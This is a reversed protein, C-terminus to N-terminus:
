STALYTIRVELRQGVLWHEGLAQWTFRRNKARGLDYTNNGIHLVWGESRAPLSKSLELTLGSTVPRLTLKNVRYTRGEWDLSDDSSAAGRLARAAGKTGWAQGM